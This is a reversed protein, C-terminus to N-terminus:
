AALRFEEAGQEKSCFQRIANGIARGAAVFPRMLISQGLLEHAATASLSDVFSEPIGKIRAHEAPTFLRLLEPNRDHQLFPDTSRRKMYGRTITPVSTSHRSVTHMRFGKGAERDRVEKDKLYQMTSWSPDDDPIEDLIHGVTLPDAKVVELMSAFDFSMGRTVAIAVMRKRNELVGFEEGSLVHEHIDYGLDRMFTRYISMSATDQYATVNELCVVTPNVRAILSIFAAMLHGVDPDDEPKALHKKARGALSAATCPLGAELVHVRPLREMAWEDFVIEQLPAAVTIAEPSEQWVSNVHRAHELADADIDIAFAMKSAIGAESLGKHIAHSLVGAGHSVSGILIPQGAQVVSSLCETRERRRLETAIPLIFIRGTSVIVRVTEMGEFISLAEYSNLDIVPTRRGKTEKSSVHRLGDTALELVVMKKAEDKRLHYRSGPTFGGQEPRSGELWLRPANKHSGIKKVEINKFNNRM